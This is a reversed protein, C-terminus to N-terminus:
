TTPSSKRNCVNDYWALRKTSLAGSNAEEPEYKISFISSYYRRCADEGAVNHEGNLKLKSFTNSNVQDGNVM